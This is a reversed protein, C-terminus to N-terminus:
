CTLLLSAECNTASFCLHSFSRVQSRSAESFASVVKPTHVPVSNATQKDLSQVGEEQVEHMLAAEVIEPQLASPKSKQKQKPKGSRDKGAKVPKSQKEIGNSTLYRCLFPNTLM